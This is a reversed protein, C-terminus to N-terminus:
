PKTLTWEVGDMDSEPIFYLKRHSDYHMGKHDKPRYCMTQEYDSGVPNVGYRCLEDDSDTFPNKLDDPAMFGAGNLRIPRQLRSLRSAM